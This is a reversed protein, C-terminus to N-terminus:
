SQYVELGNAVLDVFIEVLLTAISGAGSLCSLRRWAGDKGKLRIRCELDLGLRGYGFGSL